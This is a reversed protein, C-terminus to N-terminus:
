RSENKQVEKAGQEFLKNVKGYMHQYKLEPAMGAEAKKLNMMRDVISRSITDGSIYLMPEVSRITENYDRLSKRVDALAERDKRLTAMFFADLIHQRRTEYYKITERLIRQKEYEQTAESPTFGLAKGAAFWYAEGTESDFEVIRQGKPTTVGEDTIYRRAQLMDKAFNPLGREVRRWTDPNDDMAMQLLNLPINVFPGGAEQLMGPLKDKFDGPTALAKTGPIIDGLSLSQSVDFGMFRNMTGHLALDPSVGLDKVFERAEMRSDFRRGTVLTGLWTALDLIDEAFPLGSLGSLVMIIALARANGPDRGLFWLMGIMYRKFLFLISKKGRLLEPRDWKSYEFQTTEVADRVAEFAKTHDLGKKRALEYTAIATWARNFKEAKHFLFAGVRSVQRLRRGADTEPLLRSLTSGESVAALESAFSEDLFGAAKGEEIMRLIDPSVGKPNTYVRRLTDTAKTLEALASADGYRSALYPYTAMPVQAMNIFAAKPVASLYWLFGFARAGEWESEPNMLYHFHRDLHEYIKRAKVTEVSSKKRLLNAFDNMDSRAQSMQRYHTIRALHNAARFMYAAYGRMADESFGLVSQRRMLHKRWSHAPSISYTYQKLDARQQDDLQLADALKDLMNPPIGQFAFTSEPIKDTVILADKKAFERALEKKLKAEEQRADAESEHFSVIKEGLKFRKGQYTLPAHAQMTVTYKGFRPLPFYPKERMQDFSKNIKAVEEALAEPSNKLSTQAERLLAQQVVDLVLSFDEKVKSYLTIADAELGYKKLVEPDAMDFWKESVTEDLLLKALRNGQDKGLGYWEHLREDARAFWKAKEQWWSRTAALYDQLPKVTTNLRALDTLGAFQRIFWNYRVPDMDSKREARQTISEDSFLKDIVNSLGLPEQSARQSRAVEELFKEYSPAPKFFGQSLYEYFRKLLNAVRKYLTDVASITRPNTTGYKAFQNALIEDTSFMYGIDVEPHKVLWDVVPINREEESMYDLERFFSMIGERRAFAQEVTGTIMKDRLAQVDKIVDLQLDRPVRYFEAFALTHGFEHALTNMWRDYVRNMNGLYMNSQTNLEIFATGDALFGARGNNRGLPAFMNSNLMSLEHMMQEDVIIVRRGPMFRKTWADIQPKAMEVFDANGEFGFFTAQGIPADEIYRQGTPRNYVLGLGTNIRQTKELGVQAKSPSLRLERVQTLVDEATRARNMASAMNNINKNYYMAPGIAMSQPVVWELWTNGKEDTVAQAHYKKKVFKVLREYRKKLGITADQEGVTAVAGGPMPVVEWGEVKSVTEPTALRMVQVGEYAAQRTEEQLALTYLHEGLGPINETSAALKNRAERLDLGIDDMRMYFRDVLEENSLGVDYIDDFVVPNARITKDADAALRPLSLGPQNFRLQEVHKYESLLAELDDIERHLEQVQTSSLERHRQTVDSQVEVISRTKKDNTTFSRTHVAYNPAERGFHTENSTRYPLNWIHTIPRVNSLKTGALNLRDLGYGAYTGSKILSLPPLKEVVSREFERRPIETQGQYDAELVGKVLEKEVGKIDQRNLIQDITERKVFDKDPLLELTQLTYERPVTPTIDKQEFPIDKTQDEPPLGSEDAEGKPEPPMKAWEPLKAEDITQPGIGGKTLPHLAVNAGAGMVAGVLGSHVLRNTADKLTINDDYVGMEYGMNLSETLMESAAENWMVGLTKRWFPQAAKFAGFTLLEPITEALAGFTADVNAQDSSRGRQRAQLYYEPYTQGGMVALGAAPSKTVAFAVLGPLTNGLGAELAEAAIGSLYGPAQTPQIANLKQQIAQIKQQNETSQEELSPVKIQLGAQKVLNEIEPQFDPGRGAKRAEIFKQRAGYFQLKWREPVRKIASEFTGIDEGPEVWDQTPAPSAQQGPETWTEKKQEGFPEVWAM